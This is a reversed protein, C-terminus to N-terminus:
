CRQRKSNGKNGGLVPGQGVAADLQVCSIVVQRSSEDPRCTPDTTQPAKDYLQVMHERTAAESVYGLFHQALERYQQGNLRRLWGDYDGSGDCAGPSGLQIRFQSMTITFTSIARATRRM